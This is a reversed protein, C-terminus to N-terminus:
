VAVMRTSPGEQVSFISLRVPLKEYLTKDDNSLGDCKNDMTTPNEPEALWSKIM